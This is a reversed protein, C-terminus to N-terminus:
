CYPSCRSAHAPRGSSRATCRSGRGTRLSSHATCGTSRAASRYVRAGDSESRRAIGSSSAPSREAKTTRRDYAQVADSRNRRADRRLPRRALPPALFASRARLADRCRDRPARPRRVANRLVPLSARAGELSARGTRFSAPRSALPANRLTYREGVRPCRRAWRVVPHGPRLDAHEGQEQRRGAREQRREGQHQGRRPRSDRGREPVAPSTGDAASAGDWGARSPALADPARGLALRRPVCVDPHGPLRELRRVPVPPSDNCSSGARALAGM